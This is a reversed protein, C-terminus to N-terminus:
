DEDWFEKDGEIRGIEEVPKGYFDTLREELTQQPRKHKAVLEEVITEIQEPDAALRLREKDEETLVFGSLAMTGTVNRVMDKM